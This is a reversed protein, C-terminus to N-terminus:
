IAAVKDYYQHDERYGGHGEGITAFTEVLEIARLYKVMKYGTKTEIRLRCPAGHPIPLPKWNMEYALITQPDRVEDLTLVEYYSHPAYEEQMFAHFVVYRATPLPRCLKLIAHMCVGGWEAVASWGQICNHKVIQEQKPFAKLYELSLELPREVLGGISLRWAAFNQDALRKYPESEPPYGNVRHYPSIDEKTYRQRSQLRGLLFRVVPEIIATAKIQFARQHRLTYITAVIHFIIVGIVGTIAITVALNAYLGPSGFVMNGINHKFHVIVVLSVHVLTYLVLTMLGIFHLSRAAQRGGFLKPYWPFRAIFAPSMCVGTLIMLPAVVFVIFAYTLQQLPDYPAFASEPPIQFSAFTLFSDWAKSFITWSTPIFRRWEGTLFLLTAYSLGNLVWIPIILFHWNRGAGLNHHGGPLAVISNIHEAEDMSTWLRDKPMVKKGFKIWESGPTTDDNWYLKPHDALIQVGSRMLLFICFLNIFHNIRLWLPFGLTEQDM